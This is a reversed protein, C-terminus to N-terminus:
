RAPLTRFGLFDFLDGLEVVFREIKVLIVAVLLFINTLLLACCLFGGAIYTQKKDMGFCYILQIVDPEAFTIVFFVLIVLQLTQKLLSM